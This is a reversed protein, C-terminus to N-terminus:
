IRIAYGDAMSSKGSHDDVLKLLHNAERQGACDFKAAM